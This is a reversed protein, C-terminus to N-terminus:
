IRALTEGEQAAGEKSRRISKDCSWGDTLPNHLMGGSGLDMDSAWSPTSTGSGDEEEDEGNAPGM